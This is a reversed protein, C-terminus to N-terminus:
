VRGTGFRVTVGGADQTVDQCEHGLHIPISRAADALVELLEARHFVM